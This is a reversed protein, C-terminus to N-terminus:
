AGKVTKIVLELVEEITNQTSDIEIADEAKRLPAFERTSDAHDRQIIQRHITEFDAEDGKQLLELTRRRARERSSATLYFKFRADPLVYTGIDRGDLVVNGSKAIERQLQVLKIRVQPIASVDSAAKSVENDRIPGTVDEGDLFIKQEGDVYTIQIDTDPLMPVVKEADGPEIGMKLAKLGIARYMAGTDLYIFGLARAVARALTSKGAGSPGDIAIQVAM